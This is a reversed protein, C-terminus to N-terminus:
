ELFERFKKKEKSIGEWFNREVFIKPWLVNRDILNETM